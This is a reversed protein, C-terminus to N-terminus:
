ERKLRYRGSGIRINLRQVVITRMTEFEKHSYFFSDHIINGKLHNLHGYYIDDVIISAEVFQLEMSLTRYGFYEKYDTLFKHIQPFLRKILRNGENDRLMDFLVTFCFNKANSRKTNNEKAIYEYLYGTECLELFLISTPHKFEYGNINAFATIRNDEARNRLCFALFMFQSNAIDLNMLKRNYQRMHKRFFSPTNTLSTHLRILREIKEGDRLIIEKVERNVFIKGSDWMLLKFMNSYYTNVTKIEKFKELSIFYYSNENRIFQVDGSSYNEILFSRSVKKLIKLCGNEEDWVNISKFYNGKINYEVKYNNLHLEKELREIIEKNIARYNVRISKLARYAGREYKCKPTKNPQELAKSLQVSFHEITGDLLEHNIVFKRATAQYDKDEVLTKIQENLLAIKAPNKTRNLKNRLIQVAVVKPKTHIHDTSIVRFRILADIIEVRNHGLILRIEDNHFEIPAYLQNERLGYNILRFMFLCLRPYLKKNRRQKYQFNDAFTKLASKMKSTLMIQELYSNSEQRSLKIM